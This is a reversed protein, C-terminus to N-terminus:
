HSKELETALVRQINQQLQEHARAYEEESVTSNARQTELRFLNEKLAEMSTAATSTEQADVVRGSALKGARSIMLTIVTVLVLCVATAVWIM